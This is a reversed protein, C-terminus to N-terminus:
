VRSWEKLRMIAEVDRYTNRYLMGSVETLAFEKSTVMDNIDKSQTGNPFVVISFGEFIRQRMKEVIIRSRPENDYVFVANKKDMFRTVDVDSGAMAISNPLFLSDLPGEVIFTTADIIARDLGFVKPKDDDLMITIYRMSDRESFSRGQFGFMKGSKDLFPIVLRTHERVNDLKAPAVAHVFEVFKDAYYLRYHQDSPIQRKEVYQKAPHDYQLQSIKPILSLLKRKDIQRQALENVSKSSTEVPTPQVPATSTNSEKLNELRYETYLNADIDKLFMGFSLGKGCNHCFYFLSGKRCIIYGRAKTKSWNSDGCYPCRCNALYPTQKKLKYGPLRLALQSAYKTDVWLM